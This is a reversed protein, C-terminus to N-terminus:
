RGEVVIRRSLQVPTGDRHTIPLVTLRGSAFLGYDGAADVKRLLNGVSNGITFYVARSYVYPQDTEAKITRLIADYAEFSKRTLEIEVLLSNSKAGTRSQDLNIALDPQYIAKGKVGEIKPMGLTLLVPHAEILDAPALKGAKMAEIAQSLKTKRWAGFDSTKGEKRRQDLGQKVPDFAGRMAHETIVQDLSVPGVGLSDEFFGAPSAFLAAVHAILRYHSLRELSIGNMTAGHELAHGYGRAYGFGNRSLGYSTIGTGAHRFRDIAELRHLKRLIAEAGRISLLGGPVPNLNTAQSNRLMSFAEADACPFMGAFRLFSSDAETIRARPTGKRPNSKGKGFGPEGFKPATTETMEAAPPQEDYDEEELFNPINAM